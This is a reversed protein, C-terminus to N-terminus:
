ESAPRVEGSDSTDDVGPVHEGPFRQGVAVEAPSAWSLMYEVDLPDIDEFLIEGADYDPDSDVIVPNVFAAKLILKRLNLVGILDDASPEWTVQGQQGQPNGFQKKIMMNRLGVPITGDTSNLILAGVDPRRAELILGTNPLKLLHTVKQKWARAPSVTYQDRDLVLLNDNTGNPGSM